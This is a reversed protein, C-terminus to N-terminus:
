RKEKVRALHYGGRVESRVVESAFLATGAVVEQLIGITTRDAVGDPLTRRFGSCRRRGCGEVLYRSLLPLRMECVFGFCV